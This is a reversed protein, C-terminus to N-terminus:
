LIDLWGHKRATEKDPTRIMNAWFPINQIIIASLDGYYSENNFSSVQHSGGLTLSKGSLLNNDPYNNQYITLVDKGGRFHCEELSEDTVPIFKSKDSTTGSSKAFWKVEGPWLLESEGKRLRDVWPKIDEYTQVPVREKFQSYNKIEDYRHIRGWESPQAQSILRLFTDHQVDGPYKCMLEIQSTRKINFWKIISNLIPM